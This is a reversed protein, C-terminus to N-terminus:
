ELTVVSIRELNKEFSSKEITSGAGSNSTVEYNVVLVPSVDKQSGSKESPLPLDLIAKSGVSVLLKKLAVESLLVNGERLQVSTIRLQSIRAEKDFLSIEVHVLDKGAVFPRTYTMRMTLKFGTFSREEIVTKPEQSSSLVRVCSNEVCAEKVFSGLVATCPGCDRACSCKNEGRDCVFNGCVNQVQTHKCVFSADCADITLPNKDDCVCSTPRVSFWEFSDRSLVVRVADSRHDKGGFSVADYEYAVILIVDKFKGQSESSPFDLRVGASVVDDVQWLPLDVRDSGLIISQRGVSDYGEVDIRKIRLNEVDKVAEQLTIKVSLEDQAVNFKQNFTSAFGLLVGHLRESSTGYKLKPKETFACSGSTCRGEFGERVCDANKQCEARPTSNQYVCVSNVCSVTSGLHTECDNSVSCESKTCSVLIALFVVFVLLVIKRKM